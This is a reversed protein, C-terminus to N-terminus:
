GGRREGRAGKCEDPQQRLAKYIIAESPAEVTKFPSTTTVDSESGLPGGMTLSYVLPLLKDCPDVSISTFHSTSTTPAPKLPM